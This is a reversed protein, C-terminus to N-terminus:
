LAKLLFLARGNELRGEQVIEFHKQAATVFAAEDLHGYLDDRGRVLEKFRPDTAPVWEAIAWQATLRRLLSVVESLPIQDAILLHHVLGLMMVCDFRGEARDLLSLWERNLWGTAPSPRAPDAILPQVDLKQDAALKWNRMSAGVDTDWGVVRAGKEAAIRSYVGTNAGLDLVRQPSTKLLSNRVFVQKEEHDNDSYHGATEPYESWRSDRVEPKLAAVKGRLKQLNRRLVASALEPKQRLKAASATAVARGRKEFLHPLTVLSRFPERWRRATGLYPYLDAPEYGDRRLLSAALPWGLYCYALLPLLFTRVFQAYALWIPSELDRADISLVDVFVPQTGEFLVNLPTADKLILGENLLEECLDLTLDAAAIWANPTWEWSYSPFFIRPHELIIEGTEASDHEVTAILRGQKVWQQALPSQLFRLAPQALSVRVRRRVLDADIRLSGAPDRFTEIAAPVGSTM